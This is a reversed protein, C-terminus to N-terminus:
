QSSGFEEKQEQRSAAHNIEKFVKKWFEQLKSLKTKVAEVGSGM